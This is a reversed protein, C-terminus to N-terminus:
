GEMGAAYGNPAPAGIHDQQFLPLAQAPAPLYGSVVSMPVPEHWGLKGTSDDFSGIRCLTFDSPYRGVTTSRDLALETVARVAQADHNMFFPPTYAGAKMDLLSYALLIM